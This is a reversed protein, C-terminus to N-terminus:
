FRTKFINTTAKALWTPWSVAIVRIGVKM